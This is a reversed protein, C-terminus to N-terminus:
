FGYFPKVYCDFLYVPAGGGILLHLGCMSCLFDGAKVLNLPRHSLPRHLVHEEGRESGLTTMM